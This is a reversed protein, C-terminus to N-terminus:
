LGAEKRRFIAIAAILLAGKFVHQYFPSISLLNMGNSITGLILVGPLTGIPGGIGGSLLTGGMAAGIVSDLALSRGVLPDGSALRGTLYAGAVAALLSCIVYCSVKVSAAPLGSIRAAEPNEGAAYLWLGFRTRHMLAVCGAFAALSWFLGAPLGFFSGAVAAVLFEPADGGPVPLLVFTLGQVVSMSALTMIIPHIGLRVVGLGNVTGVAIAAVAALPLKAGTPLDLTLIASTLNIVAGVSLDFGASLLVFTQGLSALLLPPLQRMLNGLNEASFFIAPIVLALGLWLVLLVAGAAFAGRQRFTSAHQDARRLLGAMQLAAM